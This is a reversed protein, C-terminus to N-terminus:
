SETLVPQRDTEPLQAINEAEGAPPPLSGAMGEATATTVGPTSADTPLLSAGMWFLLGLLLVAAASVLLKHMLIAGLIPATLTTATQKGGMAWPTLCATWARRDGTHRADLARRLHELGRRVNTHVTNVPTSMREAIERPPLDEYYRLWIASRYPETLGTVAEMLHQRIEAEAVVDVTAPVSEPRAAHREHRQRRHESRLYVLIRRELTRRLYGRLSGQQRLGESGQELTEQVADDAAVPDEILALALARLRPEEGLLVELQATDPLLSVM